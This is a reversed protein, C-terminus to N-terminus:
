YMNSFWNLCIFPHKSFFSGSFYQTDVRSRVCPLLNRSSSLIGRGQIRCWVRRPSLSGTLVQGVWRRLSVRNPGRSRARVSRRVPTLRPGPVVSSGDSFRSATGSVTHTGTDRGRMYACCEQFTRYDSGALGPNYYPLVVVSSIM